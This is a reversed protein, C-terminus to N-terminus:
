VATLHQQSPARCLSAGVVDHGIGPLRETFAGPRMMEFTFRGGSADSLRSLAQAQTDFDQDTLCLHMGDVRQYETDIFLARAHECALVCTRIDSRMMPM